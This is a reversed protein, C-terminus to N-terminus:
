DRVVLGHRDLLERCYGEGRAEDGYGAIRGAEHLRRVSCLSWRSIKIQFYDPRGLCAGERQKQEPRAPHQSM